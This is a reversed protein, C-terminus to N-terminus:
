SQASPATDHSRTYSGDQATGVLTLVNQLPGCDFVFLSLPPSPIIHSNEYDM